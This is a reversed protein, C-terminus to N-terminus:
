KNLKKFQEALSKIREDRDKAKQTSFNNTSSTVPDATPQKAMEEIIGVLSVVTQNTQNLLENMKTFQDAQEQFRQEYKQEYATFKQNIEAFQSDFNPPPAPQSAGVATIIGGEGVTLKTGDALELEGPPAPADGVTVVGGAALETIACETGDKLQYAAQNVPATPAPAGPAPTFFKEKLKDKIKALEVKFDMFATESLLSKDIQTGSLIEYVQEEMSQGKRSYSFVGEVSFGKVEGTKIKNWVDDNEVKATIFWTGDPCDEFGKPPMKGMSSDTIFSEFITVGEVPLTPDHFLNLNKQYDKKFFKLAIQEITEKSFFVNYEGNEDKRYILQDAIMAPGTVMRKEPTVAFLLPKDFALFNKEIAPKDVFAVAAVEVESEQDPNIVMEFIPLNM